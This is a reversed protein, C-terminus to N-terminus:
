VQFIPVGTNNIFLTPTSFTMDGLLTGIQVIVVAESGDKEVIMGGLSKNGHDRLKTSISNQEKGDIFLTLTDSIMGTKVTVRITHGNWAAEYARSFVSM